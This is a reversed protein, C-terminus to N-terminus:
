VPPQWDSDKYFGLGIFGPGMHTGFVPGLEFLRLEKWEFAARLEKELAVAAPLTRGHALWGHLPGNGARQRVFSVMEEVARALTRPKSIVRVEGGEITLIPKIKLLTGVLARAAGIRGGKWAYKLTDFMGVMGISETLRQASDRLEVLGAGRRAAEAAPIIVMGMALSPSDVIEIQAGPLSEKAARAASVTGSMTGSLLIALVPHGKESLERFVKQFDGVPPQSTTPFASGRELRTYFEDNTIDVGEAYVEQGFAVCLPVVSIDYRSITEPTLYATSDTVIKIQSAM